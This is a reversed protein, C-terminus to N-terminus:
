GWEFGPQPESFCMSHLCTRDIDWHSFSEYDILDVILGLICMDVHRASTRTTGYCMDRILYTSSASIVDYLYREKRVKM